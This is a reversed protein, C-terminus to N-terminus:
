NDESVLHLIEREVEDSSPHWVERMKENGDLHIEQPDERVSHKPASKAVVHHKKTQHRRIGSISSSQKGCRRCTFM